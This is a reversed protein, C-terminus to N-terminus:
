KRSSEFRTTPKEVPIVVRVMTLRDQQFDSESPNSESSPSPELLASLASDRIQGVLVCRDAGILGTIDMQGLEEHHLSTYRLGGAAQHHMMMEAVREMPVSQDQRWPEGQAGSEIAKQNTLVSRFNKQPLADIDAITGGAPFRTSLIYVTDQYIVKGNLLDVPLPNGFTGTLIRGGRRVKASGTMSAIPAFDYTTLLGKSSRPAFPLRRLESRQDGGVSRLSVSYAPLREDEVTLGISGFAPGASGFPSVHFRTPADSSIFSKDFWDSPGPDWDVLRATDTRLFDITWGRGTRDVLDIDVVELRRSAQSQGSSRADTTSSARWWLLGTVVIAATTFTLWGVAPRGLVRNVFWYDIPGILAVFGLLVLALLSFPVRRSDEFRDMVSRLQGSLDDYSTQLDIGSNSGKAFENDTLENDLFLNLLNLRDPWSAIPDEVLDGAFLVVNGFGSRYLVCFPTSVRRRTRGNLIMEGVNRPLNIGSFTDLPKQSKVFTELSSPNLDIQDYDKIPLLRKLWDSGSEPSDMEDGWSVFLQGGRKVWQAIADTQSESLSQLTPVGASNIIIWDVGDYGLPHNPFDSANPKSVAVRPAPNTLDVGLTEIGLTDGIVVVWPTERQIAVPRENTPGLPPFRGDFLTEDGRRLILPASESGVKAYVEANADSPSNMDYRVRTGDGDRTEVSWIPGSLPLSESEDRLSSSSQSRLDATGASLDQTHVSCWRGIRYIGDLGIPPLAQSRTDTGTADDDRGLIKEASTTNPQQDALKEASIEQAALEAAPMFNTGLCALWFLMGIKVSGQVRHSPARVSSFSLCSAAKSLKPVNM